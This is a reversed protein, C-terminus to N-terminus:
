WADVCPRKKGPRRAPAPTAALVRALSRRTDAPDIVDDVEFYTAANLALSREYMEAVLGDYAAQREVPDAYADLERRFGLRVAGELGMGGVEGTPWAVTLAPVHLHGAAMAQAGLGYGKRLIVTLVPVTLSSGTVFMRGFHRIQARREAEPGVMFGPTDCLSVIPLDFADCLQWFRAAKDAGDADIAGGLHTPDNAVVGVPRGEIRALATVMGPGFGRRLELVTGTDALTDIVRRVDYVRVREAPVADRLTAQDAEEWRPLRGQFYGLYRRAVAVAEEEDRVAVDIAGSGQHVELPGVDDAAVVGLGGGEIMAPGAMGISSGVTAIIVDCCGLLAANGAFSRGAAVGVLPVLGSLAAFRAFAETDLSSVAPVDTDGPRGGGGEGFLVVPLRLEAALQFLRDKKRHGQHGQTGALVTYDYAAVACRAAEEGFDTANVTAIGTILGDAPTDTILEEIPRRRRQSAVALGGYEVFSGPDCLDALNERATRMGRSHRKAVAGPRAADSLLRHREVVRALDPRMEEGAAVPGALGTVGDPRPDAPKFTGPAVVVLGAGAGVTDGAAVLLSAVSGGVPSVVDHHMKMSELVLLVDSPGVPDGPHVALEVVTAQMPATVTVPQAVDSM